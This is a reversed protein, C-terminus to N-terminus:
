PGAARRPGAPRRRPRALPVRLRPRHGQHEPHGHRRRPGRAARRPRLALVVQDGSSAPDEVLDILELFLGRYATRLHVHFEDIAAEGGRITRALGARLRCAIASRALQRVFHAAVSAFSAPEDVEPPDRLELVPAAALAAEIWAGLDAQVAALTPALALEGIGDGLAPALALEGIRDGRLWPASREEAAALTAEPLARGAGRAFIELQQALAGPEGPVIRLRRLLEDLRRAAAVEGATGLSLDERRLVVQRALFEDLADRIYGLLGHTNSGILVHRDAAADEVIVRAFVQSRGVRDDRNNVVTILYHDPEAALDQTACGTRRWNSLFGTRENASCGNIFELLRGRVRAPGFRKLVGLDPVVHEAMTVIALDPDLGLEVALRAVLAVNRPHEEYPFLALLDAPLLEGALAPLEIVRTRQRGAEARLLPLFNLESTILTADTPVFGAIVAAVDVGAPGQIDEHDPYANTITSLDDRMWARQLIQVYAPSLAMCEWLFVESGLARALHLLTRQEWITAKGQPRFSYIERAPGGPPAHIFMAECGTTKAFVRHGLGHLLGAKLRETGSKGRTGWGGIVLPIAARDRAIGRSRLYAALLGLAAVGALFLALAQQSNSSVSIFYPANCGCGTSCTPAEALM